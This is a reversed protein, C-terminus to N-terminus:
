ARIKELEAMMTDYVGPTLGPFTDYFKKSAEKFETTDIEIFEVGADEMAKKAEAEVEDSLKNNYIAGATFEEQIIQQQEPTLSKFVDNSMMVAGSGVFHNTYTVYKLVEAFQSSYLDGISSECGEVVGQQIANYIEGWGMAVPNAGLAMFTDAWLQSKPIRIKVNKLDALTKVPKKSTGLQRMGFCYDLALVKVGNEEAKANLSKAFDSQAMKCFEDQSDYLMPGLLANYDPVFDAMCSADYVNIFNAGRRCQEVGDIGYPLQCNEYVEIVIEGNTRTKIKEAVDALAIHTPQDSLFTHSLKFVIPEKATSSESSTAAGSSADTGSSAAPKSGCGSLASLAFVGALTLALLRKKM